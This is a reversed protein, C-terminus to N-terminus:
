DPAQPSKAKGLRFPGRGVQVLVIPIQSTGALPQWRNLLGQLLIYFMTIFCFLASASLAIENSFLM